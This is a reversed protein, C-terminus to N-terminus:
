RIIVPNILTRRFKSMLNRASLKFATWYSMKAKEKKVKKTTKKFELEEIIKKWQNSTLTQDLLQPFEHWLCYCYPCNFNCQSTIELVM